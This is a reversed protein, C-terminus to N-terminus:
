KGFKKGFAQSFKNNEEQWVKRSHITYELLIFSLSPCYQLNTSHYDDSIDHNNNIDHYENPQNTVAYSIVLM